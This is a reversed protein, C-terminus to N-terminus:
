KEGRMGYAPKSTMECVMVSHALAHCLAYKGGLGLQGRVSAEVGLAILRTM